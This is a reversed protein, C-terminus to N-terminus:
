ENLAEAKLMRLVKATVAEYGLGGSGGKQVGVTAHSRCRLTEGMFWNPPGKGNPRLDRVSWNSVLLEADDKRFHHLASFEVNPAYLQEVGEHTKHVGSSGGLSTFACRGLGPVPLIMANGACYLGQSTEKEVFARGKESIIAFSAPGCTQYARYMKFATELRECKLYQHAYYADTGINDEFGKWNGLFEDGREQAYAVTGKTHKFTINNIKALSQFEPLLDGTQPDHCYDSLFLATIDRYLQLDELTIRPDFGHTKPHGSCAAILVENPFTKRYFVVVNETESTSKDSM